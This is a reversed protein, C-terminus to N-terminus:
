SRICTAILLQSSITAPSWGTVVELVSTMAAITVAVIHSPNVQDPVALCCGHLYEFRINFQMEWPETVDLSLPIKDSADLLSQAPM